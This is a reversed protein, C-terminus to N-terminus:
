LEAPSGYGLMEALAPNVMLFRGDPTSRFVGGPVNEFVSCFEQETDEAQQWRRVAFVLLGLVMAFLAFIVAGRLPLTGLFPHLVWEPFGTALAVAFVALALFAVIELERLVDRQKM